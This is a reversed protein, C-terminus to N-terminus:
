QDNDNSNHDMDNMDDDTDSPMSTDFPTDIGQYTFGTKDLMQMQALLEFPIVFNSLDNPDEPNAQTTYIPFTKYDMEEEGQLLQLKVGREEIKIRYEKKMCKM